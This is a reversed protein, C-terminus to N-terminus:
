LTFHFFFLNLKVFNYFLCNILLSSQQKVEILNLNWQKKRNKFQYKINHKDNFDNKFNRYNEINLNNFQLTTINSENKPDISYPPSVLPECNQLRSSYHNNVLLRYGNEDIRKTSNL